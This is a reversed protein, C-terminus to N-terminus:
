RTEMARDPGLEPLTGHQVLPTVPFGPCLASFFRLAACPYSGTRVMSLVPCGPGVSRGCISQGGWEAGGTWGAGGRARAGACGRSPPVSRGPRQSAPPCRSPSVEPLREEAHPEDVLPVEDISSRLEVAHLDGVEPLGSGLRLCQSENGVGHSTLVEDNRHREVLDAQVHGHGVLRRGFEERKEALGAAVGIRGISAGRESIRRAM